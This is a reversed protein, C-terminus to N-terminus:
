DNKVEMMLMVKRVADTLDLWDQWGLVSKINVQVVSADILDVTAVFGMDNTIEAKTVTVKM